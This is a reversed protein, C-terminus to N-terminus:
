LKEQTSSSVSLCLIIHGDVESTYYNRKLYNTVSMCVCITKYAEYFLHLNNHEGSWICKKPRGVPTNVKM